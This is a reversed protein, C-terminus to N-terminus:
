NKKEHPREDYVWRKWSRPLPLGAMGFGGHDAPDIPRGHRRVTVVSLVIVGFGWIASAVLAYDGYLDPFRERFTSLAALAVLFLLFYLWPRIRKM